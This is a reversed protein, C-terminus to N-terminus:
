RRTAGPRRLEEWIKAEMEPTWVTTYDGNRKVELKKVNIAKYKPNVEGTVRVQDLVYRTKLRRGVNPLLYFKGDPTQLVFDSEAEIMPDLKDIPCTLGEIACNLGNIVGEFTETAASASFPLLLASCLLPMLMYRFKRYSVM